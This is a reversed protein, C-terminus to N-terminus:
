GSWGTRQLGGELVVIIRYRAFPKEPNWPADDDNADSFPIGGHRDFNRACRDASSLPSGAPVTPTYPPRANRPRDRM